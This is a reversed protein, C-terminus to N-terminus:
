GESRQQFKSCKGLPPGWMATTVLFGPAREGTAVAKERAYSTKFLREGLM